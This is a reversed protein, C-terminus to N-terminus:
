AHSEERVGAKRKLDSFFHGLEQWVESGGSLGRWHMRIIGVLKYCADIPLRYYEAPAAGRVYGIRNVLLAEVDSDMDSLAPNQRLIEDWAELALRSETAGAPSPYLVSMKGQASNKFFFAMNIPIMLGDWQADTMRFDSLVTVRRPVRKYRPGHQGSFLVACADCACLLKRCAIEVLHAHEPLLEAGCLECREAPRRRRAFQRLAAFGGDAGSFQGANMAASDKVRDWNEDTPV